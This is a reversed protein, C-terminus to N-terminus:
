RTSFHRHRTIWRRFITHIINRPWINYVTTTRIMPMIITSRRRPRIISITSLKSPQHPPMRQTHQRLLFILTLITTNIHCPCRCLSPHLPRGHLPALHTWDAWRTTRSRHHHHHHLRRRRSLHIWRRICSRKSTHQKRSLRIKAETKSNSASRGDCTVATRSCTAATPICRGIPVRALGSRVEHYKSLAITSPCRIDFRTRGVNSIKDITRTDIKFTNISKLSHACAIPHVTSPMLSWPFTKSIWSSFNSHRQWDASCHTHPSKCSFPPKSAAYRRAYTLTPAAQLSLNNPSSQSIHSTNVTMQSIYSGTTNSPWHNTVSTNADLDTTPVLSYSSSISDMNM